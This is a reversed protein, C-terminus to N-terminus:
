NDSAELMDPFLSFGEPSLTVEGSVCFFFRSGMFALNGDTQKEKELKCMRVEM